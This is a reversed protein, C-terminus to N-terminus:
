SEREMAPQGDLYQHWEDSEAVRKIMANRRRLLKVLHRRLAAREAVRGLVGLPASFQMEDRMRTGDDMTAFHHDHAFSAFWGEVMADRFYVFPRWGDIVSTHRLRLAFHRGSWTVTDGSRMLGSAVGAVVREGSGVSALHLEVSLSLRFCREVPAQIMTTMRITQM